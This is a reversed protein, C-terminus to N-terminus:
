THAEPEPFVIIVAIIVANSDGAHRPAARHLDTSHFNSPRGRVGLRALVALAILVAVSDARASLQRLCWCSLTDMENALTISEEPSEASAHGSGTLRRTVCERDTAPLVARQSTHPTIGASEERVVGFCWCALHIGSSNPKLRWESGFACCEGNSAQLGDVGYRPNQSIALVETVDVDCLAGTSLAIYGRSVSGGCSYSWVRSKAFILPACLTSRICNFNCHLNDSSSSVTDSFPRSRCFRPLAATTLRYVRPQRRLHHSPHLIPSYASTLTLSISDLLLGPM